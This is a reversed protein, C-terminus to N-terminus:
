QCISNVWESLTGTTTGENARHPMNWVLAYDVTVDSIYKKLLLGINYNVTFSTHEDATGNRMRWHKAIDTLNPYNWMM